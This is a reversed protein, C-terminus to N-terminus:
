ATPESADLADDLLIARLAGGVPTSRVDEPVVLLANARSMSTLLNSGQAGTLRATLCGGNDPEVVARLFHTLPALTEVAETVTVTLARRFIRSRGGLRRLLPRGFMEFTVMSSVPNGPLGLWRVVDGNPRRVVGFGLPGGPRIRARWFRQELGLESLAARTHDHEGVSIGGSTM